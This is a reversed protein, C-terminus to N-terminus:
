EGKYVQPQALLLAGSAYALRRRSRYSTCDQATFASLEMLGLPQMQNATMRPESLSAASAQETHALSFRKMQFTIVKRLLILENGLLPLGPPCIKQPTVTSSGESSWLSYPKWLSTVAPTM